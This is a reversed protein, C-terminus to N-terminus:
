TGSSSSVQYTGVYDYKGLDLQLIDNLMCNSDAFHEEFIGQYKEKFKNRAKNKPTPSGKTIRSSWRRINRTVNDNPKKFSLNNVEFRGGGVMHSPQISQYSKGYGHRFIINLMRMVNVANDDSAANEIKNPPICSREFFNNLQHIFEEYEFIYEYPLILVDNFVNKTIEFIKDFCLRGWISQQSDWMLEKLYTDISKMYGVRVLQVYQSFVLDAQNRIVILVKTHPFIEKYRSLKVAYDVTGTSPKGGALFSENSVGVSFRSLLGKDPLPPTTPTYFSSQAELLQHYFYNRWQRDASLDFFDNEEVFYHRQLFSSGCKPYGVHLFSKM